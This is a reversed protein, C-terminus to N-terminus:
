LPEKILGLELAIDSLYRLDGRVRFGGALFQMRADKEGDLVSQIRRADGIVEVLPTRDVGAVATETVRARGDGCEVLYNGGGPGTLRFVIDGRKMARGQAFRESLRELTDQFSGQRKGASTRTRPM